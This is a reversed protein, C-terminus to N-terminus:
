FRGYNDVNYNFAIWKYRVFLSHVVCLTPRCNSYFPEFILTQFPDYAEAEIAIAIIFHLENFYVDPEKNLFEKSKFKLSETISYFRFGYVIRKLWKWKLNTCQCMPVHLNAPFNHQEIHPVVITVKYKFELLPCSFFKMWISIFRRQEHLAKVHNFNCTKHCHGCCFSYIWLPNWKKGKMQALCVYVWVCLTNKPRQKRKMKWGYSQLASCNICSM